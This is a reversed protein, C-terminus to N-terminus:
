SVRSVVLWDHVVMINEETVGRWHSEVKHECVSSNSYLVLIQLLASM